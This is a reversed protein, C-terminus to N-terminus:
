LPQGTSSGSPKASKRPRARRPTSPKRFPARPTGGNGSSSVDRGASRSVVLVGKFDGSFPGCGHRFRQVDAHDAVAEHAPGVGVGVGLDAM